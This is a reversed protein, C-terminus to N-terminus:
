SPPELGDMLRQLRGAKERRAEAARGYSLSLAAYTPNRAAAARDRWIKADAEFGAATRLLDDVYM